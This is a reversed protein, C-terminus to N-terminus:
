SPYEIVVMCIVTDILEEGIVKLQLRDSNDINVTLPSLYFRQEFPEFLVEGKFIEKPFGLIGDLYLDPHRQDGLEDQQYNFFPCFTSPSKGVHYGKDSAM